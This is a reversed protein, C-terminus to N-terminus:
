PKPAPLYLVSYNQARVHVNIRGDNVPLLSPGPHHDLRVRAGPPTTLDEDRMGHLEAAEIAKSVNASRCDEFLAPM